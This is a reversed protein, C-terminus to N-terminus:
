LKGEFSGEPLQTKFHELFIHCDVYGLSKILTEYEKFPNEFTYFPSHAKYNNYIKWKGQDLIDYAEEIYTKDLTNFFLQGGPKLM